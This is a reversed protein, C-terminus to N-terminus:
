SAESCSRKWAKGFAIRANTRGCRPCYGYEGLIDTETGCKDRDCKFHLQQKVESYHWAPKSDTVDAEGISTNKKGMYARAFADYCATLYIRQDKSIFALSSAPEACYPCYTLDM